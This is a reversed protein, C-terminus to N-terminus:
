CSTRWEGLQEKKGELGLTGSFSSLASHGLDEVSGPLSWTWDALTGPSECTPRLQRPPERERAPSYPKLSGRPVASPVPSNTMEAVSAQNQSPDAQKSVRSIMKLLHTSFCWLPRYSAGGGHNLSQGETDM